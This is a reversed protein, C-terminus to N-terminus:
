EAGRGRPLAAGRRHFEHAFSFHQRKELRSVDAIAYESRHDVPHCGAEPVALAGNRQGMGRGYWAVCSQTHHGRERGRPRRASIELRRSLMFKEFKLKVGRGAM